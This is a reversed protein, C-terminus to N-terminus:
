TCTYIFIYHAIITNENSKRCVISCPEHYIYAHIYQEVCMHMRMYTHTYVYIYIYIYIGVCMCMYIFVSHEEDDDYKCIHAHGYIRINMYVCAYIWNKDEEPQM